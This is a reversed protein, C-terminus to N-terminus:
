PKDMIIKAHKLLGNKIKIDTQQNAINTVHNAKYKKYVQSAEEPTSYRGLFKGKGNVSCVAKFKNKASDDFCVGIPYKGREAEHDCLLNNLRITVFVCFEHSYHKNGPFIIDKDLAKEQWEQKEMWSKFNSFIMWDKSVTCKKYTPRSKHFKNSFCRELMNVWVQYFPCLVLKGNIRQTVQYNADNIGVGCVPKRSAISYNNPYKM